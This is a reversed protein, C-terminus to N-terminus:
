SYNHKAMDITACETLIRYNEPILLAKETKIVFRKDMLSFQPNQMSIVTFM